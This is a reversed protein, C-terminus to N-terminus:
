KKRKNRLEKVAQAFPIFQHKRKMARDFARIDEMEEALELLKKYQNMSLQVAVAKGKKDKVIQGTISM